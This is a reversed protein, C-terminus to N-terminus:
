VLAYASRLADATLEQYRRASRLKSSYTSSHVHGKARVLRTPSGAETLRAALAEGEDRLPDYQCTLVLAPPLGSLDPALLPSAYAASRQAPDPVYFAYGELLAARTCLYGTAYSTMSPQSATLDTVPIELLQFILTPGGRDRAMMAVVVAMGGGASVGGVSVRTTDVKLEDAQDVVWRLAAYSDEIGTPWPHEPALRYDVSAVVCNARAAYLRALPDITEVSGSWFSGSHMLVHAPLRVTTAPRYTRVRITGGEVPVEHDVVVLSDAPRVPRVGDLDARRESVPRTDVTGESRAALRCALWVYPHRVVSEENSPSRLM